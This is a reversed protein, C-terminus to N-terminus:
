LYMSGIVAGAEKLEQILWAPTDEYPEFKNEEPFNEAIEEINCLIVDKCREADAFVDDFNSEDLAVGM